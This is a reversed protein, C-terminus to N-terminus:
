EGSVTQDLMKNAIIADYRQEVAFVADPFNDGVLIGVAAAAPHVAPNSPTTADAKDSVAVVFLTPREDSDQCCSSHNGIKVRTGSSYDWIVQDIVPRYYPDDGEPRVIEAACVYYRKM